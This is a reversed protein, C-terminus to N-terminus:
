PWVGSRWWPGVTHNLTRDVNSPADYRAPGDEARNKKGYAGSGVPAVPLSQKGTSRDNSGGRAREV